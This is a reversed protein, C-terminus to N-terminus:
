EPGESTDMKKDHPAKQSGTQGPKKVNGPILEDDDDMLIRYAEGDMDEYQDSNVSWYFVVIAVVSILLAAPILMLIIDM